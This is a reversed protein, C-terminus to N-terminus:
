PLLVYVGVGDAVGVVVAVGVIAGVGVGVITGVGVGVVTGSAGDEPPEEPEM